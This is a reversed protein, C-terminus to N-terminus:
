RKNPRVPATQKAQEDIGEVSRPILGNIITNVDDAQSELQNLETRDRYRERKRLFDEYRDHPRFREHVQPTERYEPANSYRLHIEQFLQRKDKNKKYVRKVHRRTAQERDQLNGNAIQKNNNLKLDNPLGHEPNKALANATSGLFFSAVLVILNKKNM